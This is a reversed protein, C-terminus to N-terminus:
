ETRSPLMFWFDTPNGLSSEVGIAGGHAAIAMKCFALGLGTSKLSSDNEKNDARVYPEFIAEQMDVPISPGSNRVTIRVHNDDRITLIHITENTPSFKVANNLINDLVRRIMDRDFSFVLDDQLKLNVKLQKFNVSASLDDM